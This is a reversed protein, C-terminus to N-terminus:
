YNAPRLQTHGLHVEATGTPASTNAEFRMDGKSLDALNFPNPEGPARYTRYDLHAFGNAFLDGDITVGLLGQELDRRQLVGWPAKEFTRETPSHQRIRVKDLLDDDRDGDDIVMVYDGLLTAGVPLDIGFNFDSEAADVSKVTESQHLAFLRSKQPELIEDGKAGWVQAQESQNLKMEQLSLLAESNNITHDSGLDSASNWHIRIQATSLFRAPLAATLDHPNLRNMRQPIPLQFFAEKGNSQTTTVDKFAPQEGRHYVEEYWQPDPHITRITDGNVELEVKDVLNLIGDEDVSGGSGTDYDDLHVFLEFGTIFHDLPIEITSETDATFSAKRGDLSRTRYRTTM